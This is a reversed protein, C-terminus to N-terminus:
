IPLGTEYEKVPGGLLQFSLFAIDHGKKSYQKGLNRAINGYGSTINPGDAVILIRMIFDGWQKPIKPIITITWTGNQLNIQIQLTYNNQLANILEQIIKQILKREEIERARVYEKKEDDWVIESM